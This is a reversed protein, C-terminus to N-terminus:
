ELCIECFSGEEEEAFPILEEAGSGLADATVECDGASFPWSAGGQGVDLSGGAGDFKVGEDSIIVDFGGLSPGFDGPVGAVQFASALLQDGDLKYVRSVLAGAAFPRVEIGVKSIDAINYRSCLNWRWCLLQRASSGM